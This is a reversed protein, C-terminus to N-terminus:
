FHVNCSISKRVITAKINITEYPSNPVRLKGRTSILANGRLDLTRLSELIQPDLSVIRIDNYNLELCELLKHRIGSTDTLKNKNMTLVQM